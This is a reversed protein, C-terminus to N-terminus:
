LWQLFSDSGSGNTLSVSGFRCWFAVSGWCQNLWLIIHNVYAKGTDALPLVPVVVVHQLPLEGGQDGGKVRPGPAGIDVLCRVDLNGCGSVILTRSEEDGGGGGSVVLTRREEQRSVTKHFWHQNPYLKKGWHPDPDLSGFWRLDM